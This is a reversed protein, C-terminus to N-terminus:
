FFEETQARSWNLISYCIKFERSNLIKLSCFKNKTPTELDQIKTEKTKLCFFDIFFCSDM